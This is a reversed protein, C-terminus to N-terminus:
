FPVDEIGKTERDDKKDEFNLINQRPDIDAGNYIERLTLLDTIELLEKHPTWYNRRVPDDGLQLIKGKYVKNWKMKEKFFESIDYTRLDRFMDRYFSNGSTRLERVKKLVSEASFMKKNFPKEKQLYLERLDRHQQSWSREKMEKKAQTVPCKTLSFIDYDIQYNM